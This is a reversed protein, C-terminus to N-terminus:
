ADGGQREIRVIDGAGAALDCRVASGPPTRPCGSSAPRAHDTVRLPVHRTGRDTAVTVPEGDVVGIEGGRDRGVATRGAAHATGALYPEGDQLRGTTSCCTGPRSCPRARPRAAAARGASPRAGRRARRGLPRARGARPPRTAADPLGIPPRGHADALLNLARRADRLAQAGALM